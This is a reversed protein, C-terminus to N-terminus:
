QRSPTTGQGKAAFVIKAPLLEVGVPEPVNAGDDPAGAKLWRLLTNYDDHNTDFLKGGTHAVAGTTKELLLSKEPVALDVRRGVIARTLRYYDGAPDYGFLSLMFGDKGRAAGHCSGNNCGHKMFVPMVDLQFSVPRAQKADTVAVPVEAKLGGAEAVLTTRGDKRPALSNGSLSAITADALSLKATGTVDKTVGADDVLQVVVTHRADQGSLEVTAPFVKLAPAAGAGGAPVLLAAFSLLLIRM